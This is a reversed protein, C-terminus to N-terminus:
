RIGNFDGRVLLDFTKIDAPVQLNKLAEGFLKSRYWSLHDLCQDEASQWALWLMRLHAYEESADIVCLADLIASIQTTSEEAGTPNLYISSVRDICEHVYRQRDSDSLM